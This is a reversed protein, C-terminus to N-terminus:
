SRSFLSPANGTALRGARLEVIARSVAADMSGGGLLGLCSTIHPILLRSKMLTRTPKTNNITAM